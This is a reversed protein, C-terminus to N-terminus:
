PARLLVASGCGVLKVDSSSPSLITRLIALGGLSLSEMAEKDHCHQEQITDTLSRWVRFWKKVATKVTMWACLLVVGGQLRGDGTGCSNALRQRAPQMNGPQSRHPVPQTDVVSLSILGDDSGLPFDQQLPIVTTNKSVCIIKKYAKKRKAMWIWSKTWIHM